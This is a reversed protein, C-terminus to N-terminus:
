EREDGAGNQFPLDSLYDYAEKSGKRVVWGLAGIFVSFFILQGILVPTTFPFQSLVQSKM